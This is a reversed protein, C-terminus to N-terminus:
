KVLHLSQASNTKGAVAQGYNWKADNYKSAYDLREVCSGYLADNGTASYCGTTSVDWNSPLAMLGNIAGGAYTAIRTSNALNSRMYRIAGQQQATPFYTGSRAYQMTSTFVFPYAGVRAQAQTEAMTGGAGDIKVYHWVKGTDSSERSIVGLAYASKAVGAGNSLCLDAVNGGSSGEFVSIGTVSNDFTNAATTSAVPALMGATANQNTGAGLFFENSSAQTGSGWTRRCITVPQSDDAADGTLSSWKAWNKTGVDAATNRVFGSLAAAVFARPISPIAVGQVTKLKTFLGDSVALGFITQGLPATDLATVSAPPNWANGSDDAGVNPMNLYKVSTGSGANYVTFAKTFFAPELDSIGADAPKLENTTCVTTSGLGSKDVNGYASCSTADVKIANQASGTVLPTTGYVSGGQDRKIVLINQGAAYGQTGTKLDQALTCSYARSDSGKTYKDFSTSVCVSKMFGELAPTQASAGYIRLVNSAPIGATVTPNLAYSSGSAALAALAILRIKM